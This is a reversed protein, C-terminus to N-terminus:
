TPTCEIFSQNLAVDGSYETGYHWTNLTGGTGFKGSAFNPMYRLDDFQKQYGFVADPSSHNIQVECNTVEQEGIYELDPDFYDTRADRLWGRHCMEPYLPEPVVSMLTMVIGHEPFFKQYKNTKMAGIGHGYLDGTNAGDTSLVESFQLVNKGGGLYQAEGIRSDYGKVGFEHAIVESYRGGYNNKKERDRQLAIALRLDDISLGTANALDARINPYGSNSSDEETM